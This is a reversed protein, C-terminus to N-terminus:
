VPNGGTDIIGVRMGKGTFGLLTNVKLAGTANGACGLLGQIHDLLSGVNPHINANISMYM